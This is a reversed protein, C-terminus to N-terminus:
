ANNNAIVKKILKVISNYVTDVDKTGDVTYLIGKRSYFDLLPTTREHYVALRYRVVEEKDDERQILKGGCIDCKLDNKPRKFILHYVQGCESCIRRMTLRRIVEQDSIDLSIVMDIKKGKSKLFSDLTFAQKLTRPYGDFIAGMVCEPNCLHQKVLENVINDPVLDGRKLYVEATKGIDTGMEIERRLLDGTAIHKLNFKHAIRRAQTGKGAGPPGFIIIYM